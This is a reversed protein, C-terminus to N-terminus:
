KSEGQSARNYFWLKVKLSGLFRENPKQKTLLELDKKLQRKGAKNEKVDLFVRSKNLLAENESLYKTNSCGFFLVIFLLFFFLSCKEKIFQM